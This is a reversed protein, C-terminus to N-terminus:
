PLRRVRVPPGRRSITKRTEMAASRAIHAWDFENMNYMNVRANM